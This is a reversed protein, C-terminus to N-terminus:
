SQIKRTKKTIRNRVVVFALLITATHFEPAYLFCPGTIQVYKEMKKLRFSFTNLNLMAAIDIRYCM